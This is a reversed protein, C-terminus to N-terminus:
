SLYFNDGKGQKKNICPVQYLKFFFWARSKLFLQLNRSIELSLLIIQNGCTSLFWTKRTNWINGSFCKKFSDQCWPSYNWTIEIKLKLYYMTSATEQKIIVQELLTKRSLYPRWDISKFSCTKPNAFDTKKNVLFAGLNKKLLITRM